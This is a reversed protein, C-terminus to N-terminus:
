LPLKPWASLMSQLLAPCGHTTTVPCLWSSQHRVIEEQWTGRETTSARVHPALSRALALSTGRVEHDDPREKPRPGSIEAGGGVCVGVGVLEYARVHECKM